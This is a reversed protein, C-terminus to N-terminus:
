AVSKCCTRPMARRALGVLLAGPLGSSTSTTATSGRRRAPRRAGPDRLRGRPGGVRRERPLGRDRGRHAPPVHRRHGRARRRRLRRGSCACGPSSSTPRGSSSACCRARAEGPRRAQRLDPRRPSRDHRRRAHRTGGRPRLAGQGRAHERVLAVPDADPPDHEVYCPAVVDFPIRLQELIARRQPSTSALVLRTVTKRAVWIEETPWSRAWELTLVPLHHDCRRGPAARGPRRGRLRTRRLLRVLEGHPLQWEVGRTDDPWELRDLRLLRAAADANRSTEDDPVCLMLPRQQPPVLAARRAPAAPVGRSDLPAPRVLHERRVRLRRPRLARGAAARGRREGRRAPVDLGYEAQLAPRDRAPRRHRRCRGARAGARSGPRCTRRAAASSSSTPARWSSGRSRM